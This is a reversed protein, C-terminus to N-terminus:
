GYFINAQEPHFPYITKDIFVKSDTGDMESYINQTRLRYVPNSDINVDRLPVCINNSGQINSIYYGFNCEPSDKCSQICQDFTKDTYCEGEIADNCDMTNIQSLTANPFIMWNKEKVLPKAINYM